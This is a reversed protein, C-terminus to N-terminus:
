ALVLSRFHATPASSETGLAQQLAFSLSIPRTIATTTPRFPFTVLAGWTDQQFTQSASNFWFWTGNSPRFVAVDTKGDGDFDAPTVRDTAIGWEMVMYGATGRLIYWLGNSQVGYRFTPVATATM